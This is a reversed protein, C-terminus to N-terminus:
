NNLMVPMILMLLSENEDFEEIPLILAARNPQSMELRIQDGDMNELMERLFKSNFGIDMKEGIYDGAINENAKNSYDMDEATINNSAESLSVRVQFTSQNSYIGVRRISKLFDERSVVLSNPNDKPIVNEYNPYKGEKLSSYLVFNDFSFSIHNDDQSYEVHVDESVGNLIGKLHSLPKKPLILSAMSDAHVSSNRYRVLKHADTSVFSICEQSLECLVGMMNPRLEDNGTAFLTKSIARQLVSAQVDFSSPNGIVPVAPFEKGDKCPAAYEGEAATYKFVHNEEDFAFVIPTEPILKLTELLLKAPVAVSAEGEVNDLEIVATMTSDMDSATLILQDGKLTFLFNELIPMTSNSGMVGSIASLNRYLVDRSVIFKM